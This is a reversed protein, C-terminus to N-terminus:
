FLRLRVLLWIIGIVVSLIFLALVFQFYFDLGRERPFKFSVKHIEGEQADVLLLGSLGFVRDYEVLRRRLAPETPDFLGEGSKLVAVYSKGNKKVTYEAELSGLHSAGDVDILVTGKQNKGLIQYGCQRLLKETKERTSTSSINLM